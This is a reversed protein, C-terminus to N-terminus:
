ALKLEEASKNGRAFAKATLIANISEPDILLHQVSEACWCAFLRLEREPKIGLTELVWLAWDPRELSEWAEEMSAFRLAFERGALCPSYTGIFEQPTM